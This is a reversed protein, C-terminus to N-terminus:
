PRPTLGPNEGMARHFADREADQEALVLRGQEAEFKKRNNIIRALTPRSIGAYWQAQDWTAGTDLLKRVLRHHTERADALRAELDRVVTIASSLEAILEARPDPPTQPQDETTPPTNNLRWNPM